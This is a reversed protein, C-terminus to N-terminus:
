WVRSIKVRRFDKPKLFGHVIGSEDEAEWVAEVDVAALIDKM